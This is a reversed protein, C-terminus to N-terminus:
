CSCLLFVTERARLCCPRRIISFYLLAWAVLHILKSNNALAGDPVLHRHPSSFLSAHPAAAALLHDPLCARPSLPVGPRSTTRTQTGAPQGSFNPKPQYSARIKHKRM